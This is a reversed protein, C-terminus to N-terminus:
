LISAYTFMFPGNIDLRSTVFVRHDIPCEPSPFRSFRVPTVMWCGVGFAWGGIVSPSARPLNRPRPWSPAKKRIGQNAKILCSQLPPFSFALPQVSFALNFIAALPPLAIFLKLTQRSSAQNPVILRSQQPKQRSQPSDPVPRPNRLDSLCRPVAFAAFLPPPKIQNSKTQNGPNKAQHQRAPVQGISPFTPVLGDGGRAPLTARDVPLCTERNWLPTMGGCEVPAPLAVPRSNPRSPSNVM